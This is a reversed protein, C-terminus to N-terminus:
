STAATKVVAAHQQQQQLQTALTKVNERKQNLQTRLETNEGELNGLVELLKKKEAAARNVARSHLLQAGSLALMAPEVRPGDNDESFCPQQAQLEDLRNLKQVLEREGCIVEFENQINQMVSKTMEHWLIPIQHSSAQQVNDTFHSSVDKLKISNFAADVAKDFTKRFQGM